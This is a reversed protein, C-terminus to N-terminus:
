TRFGSLVSERQAQYTVWAVALGSAVLLGAVALAIEGAGARLPLTAYNTALNSLAPGLLWRELAVGAIAAPIVLALVAGTLLRAVASGGAGCARLVAIASRREQVTLACAQVLAYLCVLGDVIAIARIITRLISVLPASTSTAGSATAPAVGLRNVAASVRTADAGPDLIIAITSPASRDAALLAAAPVYAVHGDHDLSSVVGAIRVRVETGTGLQIALTQGPNLGLAQALGEGIEAEDPGHPRHGAVLPPAQFRTLDGPYAITDVTESLSSADVGLVEYRPAAAAVGPIRRVAAADSPPLSATLQYREGLASPDTQLTSLESALALLLLVFGVSLGLTTATAILRVRRALVLRAGLKTLGTPLRLRLRRGGHSPGRHSPGRHSPGRHSPGRHSPGSHSPGSHSPGSHGLGRHRPSRHRPRRSVDAGRLLSVTPRAAARWAPWAAGAVAMAVAVLWSGLLPLALASGPAPENLLTLLRESPGYTSLVGAACGIAAAPAAILAAELAQDLVVFGASAGIARQVGITRLRRQVEARASAALMAGATALAILSLAVLLDIVIGAAQDLLVRIGSRTAFQLDSLGYSSLRAQVLTENLYRPNRLWVEAYDVRFSLRSHFRRQLAPGSLYFRPKALPFGVNDPAEVLGVVRQPGLGGVSLTSGPRLGWAHAFAAEVLVENGTPRLNRGAVVAYGGHRGSVLIEAVADSRRHGTGASAIAVNTLEQRTSYAAVDPLARIRRTVASLSQDDFRVILDPLDAARASRGFGLGLGDAIVVAASLMASALAIGAATLLARRRRNRLGRRAERLAATIV